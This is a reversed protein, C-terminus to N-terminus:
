GEWAGKCISLGSPAGAHADLNHARRVGCGTGVGVGNQLWDAGVVSGQITRKWTPPSFSSTVAAAIATNLTAAFTSGAVATYVFKSGSNNDQITTVSGATLETASTLSTSALDYSTSVTAGAQMKTALQAYTEGSTTTVPEARREPRRPSPQKRRADRYLDDTASGVIYFTGCCLFRGRLQSHQLSDGLRSESTDSVVTATVGLGAKTTPDTYTSVCVGCRFSAQTNCSGYDTVCTSRPQAITELVGPEAASKETASGKVDHAACCIVEVSVSPSFLRTRLVGFPWRWRNCRGGAFGIRLECGRDLPRWPKLSSRNLTLLDSKRM